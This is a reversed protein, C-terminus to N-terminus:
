LQHGVLARLDDAKLRRGGDAIGSAFPVGEAELLEQPSDTREPDQWRFGPSVRGAAQLVRHPHACDSCASIHGALPQAATGIVEALDGYSTWRGRPLRRLLDHLDSWDRPGSGDAADALDVLSRGDDATVFWTPARTPGLQVGAQQAVASVVQSPLGRLGRYCWELPAASDGTWRAQRRQPDVALWADVIQRDAATLGHDPRLELPAGVALAGSTLLREVVRAARARQTAKQAVAATGSGAPALTFDDVEALPWIQQFGVLVESGNTWANMQLLTIQLQDRLWVVTHTVERPFRGAVLVIRPSHLLDADLEGGVHEEILTRAEAATTAKGRKTLFAALVEALTDITFRSVLAAYTIAQLHVDGPADDRKLEVVVLRGSRDLGLIDLRKAAKAGDTAVWKDYESTIVMVDDGLVAPHELLWEQLHAREHLAAATLTTPTLARASAQVVSFLQAM